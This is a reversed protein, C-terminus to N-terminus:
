HVHMLLTKTNEQKQVLWLSFSAVDLIGVVIDRALGLGKKPGHDGQLAQGVNHQYLTDDLLSSHHFTHAIAIQAHLFGFIDHLLRAM